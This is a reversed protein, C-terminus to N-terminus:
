HWTITLCLSLAYPNWSRRWDPHHCDAVDIKKFCKLLETHYFDCNQHLSRVTITNLHVSAFHFDQKGPDHIENVLYVSLFTLRNATGVNHYHLLPPSCLRFASPSYPCKIPNPADNFPWRTYWYVLYCTQLMEMEFVPSFNFIEWICDGVYIFLTMVGGGMRGSSLILWYYQSLTKWNQTWSLM